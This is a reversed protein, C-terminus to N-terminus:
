KHAELKKIADKVESIDERAHNLAHQTINGQFGVKIAWATSLLLVLLSVALIGADIHNVSHNQKQTLEIDSVDDTANM